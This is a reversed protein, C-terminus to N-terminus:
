VEQVAVSRPLAALSTGACLVLDVGCPYLAHNAQWVSAFDAPLGDVQLVVPARLGPGMLRYSSGRGFGSVQLILTAADEPAEHTGCPLSGLPPLSLPPLSLAVAFRGADMCPVVPAGCHFGIWPQAAAVGSDLWVPTDYDLLTLLVAATAPALPAPPTLGDGAAHISGPRALADLVSRFCSQAGTVPDIFGPQLIEASV